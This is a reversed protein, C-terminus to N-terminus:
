DFLLDKFSEVLYFSFFMFFNVLCIKARITHKKIPKETAQPVVELGLVLLELFVKVVLLELWLACFEVCLSVALEWDLKFLEEVLWCLEELLGELLELKGLLLKVLEDLEPKDLELKELELKDPDVEKLEEDPELELMGPEVNDLADLELKALELIVVGLVVLELVDLELEILELVM